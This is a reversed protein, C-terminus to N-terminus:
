KYQLQASLRKQVTITNERWLISKNKGSNVEVCVFYILFLEHGV